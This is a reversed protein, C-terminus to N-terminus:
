NSCCAALLSRDEVLKLPFAAQQRSFMHPWQDATVAEVTYPAHRLISNDESVNDSEIATIEQRIAIM